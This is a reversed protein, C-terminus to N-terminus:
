PMLETTVSYIALGFLYLCGAAFTAVGLWEWFDFESM